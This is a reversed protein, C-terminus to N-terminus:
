PHILQKQTHEPQMRLAGRIDKCCDRSPYVSVSKYSEHNILRMKEIEQPDHLNQGGFQEEFPQYDGLESM